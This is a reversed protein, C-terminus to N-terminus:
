NFAPKAGPSRSEEAFRVARGMLFSALVFVVGLVVWGPAGWSAILTTLLFPGIMEAASVGSSFFAQYQGQKDAPALGFSIEWSGAAHAMEGLAQLIAAMILAAVAYYVGAAGSSAFVLCAALLMGGAARISRCAGDMSKVRRAIHVQFLVVLVTNLLFLVAVMWKPADTFQVIWLPLALDILPIHLSMAINCLAVLAFPRDRLVALRPEKSAPPSSRSAPPVHSIVFAAVIYSLGDFAFVARYAGPTDFYLALGGLAAGLSLGANYAAQLFACIETRTTAPVLGALLSQRAAIAGRQCVAYLCAIVLFQWFTHALVYTGCAAGAGITLLIATGRPGRQDAIYGLPVAAMLGCASAITLGLGVQLPSLGIVRTFFLASCVYFAGEGLTSIFLATGLIRPVGRPPLFNLM